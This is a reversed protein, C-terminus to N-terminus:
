GDAVAVRVLRAEGRVRRGRAPHRTWALPHRHTDAVAHPGAGGGASTRSGGRERGTPRRWSRGGQGPRPGAAGAAACDLAPGGRAEGPRHEALFVHGGIRATRRLAAFWPCRGADM